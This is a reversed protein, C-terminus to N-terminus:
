EAGGKMKAGCRPCYPHYDWCGHPQYVGCASCKVTNLVGDNFAAVRIWEGVSQKRYGANYLATAYWMGFGAHMSGITALANSKAKELIDAMEEIQKEESMM